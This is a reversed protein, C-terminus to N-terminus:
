VVFIGILLDLLYVNLELTSRFHNDPMREYPIIIITVNMVNM